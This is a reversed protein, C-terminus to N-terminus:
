EPDSVRALKYNFVLHDHAILTDVARRASCRLHRGDVADSANAGDRSRMAGFSWCQHPRGSGVPGQRPTSMLDARKPYNEATGPYSRPRDLREQGERCELLADAIVMRLIAADRAATPKTVASPVPLTSAM